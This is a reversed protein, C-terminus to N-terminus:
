GDDWERMKERCRGITELALEARIRSYSSIGSVSDRPCTAVWHHISPAIFPANTTEMYEGSSNGMFLPVIEWSCHLSFSSRVELKGVM